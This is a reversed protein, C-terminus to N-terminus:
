RLHVAPSPDKKPSLLAKHLLHRLLLPAPMRLWNGRIYLLFRAMGSWADNCSADNPLLARGFLADMCALLRPAPGHPRLAAGVGEPVPTGLLRASYRLAYFLPRQLQLQAARAPLQEWFRPLTAFQRILADIDALDRLGHDFEGDSFLHVASHLLM